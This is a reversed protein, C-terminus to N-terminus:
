DDNLAKLKEALQTHQEKSVRTVVPAPRRLRWVLLLGVLLMLGPGLWLLWTTAKFPPRYLVFDGYRDTMYRRIEDDSKGQEIMERAQKRLDEALPANSEAISQNQCVLCRLEENLARWRVDQEDSWALAAGSLGLCVLCLMNLLWKM